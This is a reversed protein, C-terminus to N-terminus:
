LHNWSAPAPFVSLFLPLLALALRLGNVSPSRERSVKKEAEASAASGAAGPKCIGAALFVEALPNELTFVKPSFHWKM